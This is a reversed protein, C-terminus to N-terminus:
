TLVTIPDVFLDNDTEFPALCLVLTTKHADVAVHVNLQRACLLPNVLLHRTNEALNQYPVNKSVIKQRISPDYSAPRLLVPRM